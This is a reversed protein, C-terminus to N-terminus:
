YLSYNRSSPGHLSRRKLVDYERVERGLYFVAVIYKFLVHQTSHRSGGMRSRSFDQASTRIPSPAGVGGAIAGSNLSEWGVLLKYTTSKLTSPPWSKKPSTTHKKNRKSTMQLLTDNSFHSMKVNSLFILIPHAVDSMTHAERASRFFEWALIKAM